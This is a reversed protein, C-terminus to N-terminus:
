DGASYGFQEDLQGLRLPVFEKIIQVEAKYTNADFYDTSNAPWLRQNHAVSGELQTHYGDIMSLLRASSWINTQRLYTYRRRLRERYEPYLVGLRRLLVCRDTDIARDMMNLENDGDRGFSHDYDWIAVRYGTTGSMKYLYFNKLLGDSNNSLLLVLHWDIVQDLDFIAAVQQVFQEDTSYHLFRHLSDMEASRDAAKMKPYKQQYYNDPEQPRPLRDKYFVPPEKWLGVLDEDIYTRVLGANIKEMAVYLGQENGNTALTLYSCQPAINRRSMERYLDFSFRHRMFTKDIYSANLVWNDDSPLGAVAFAADLELAYSHKAFKRSYGARAKIKGELDVTNGENRYAVQATQKKDFGIAEDTTVEVHPLDNETCTSFLIAVLLLGLLSRAVKTSICLLSM